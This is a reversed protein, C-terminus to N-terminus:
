KLRKIKKNKAKHKLRGRRAPHSKKGRKKQERLAPFTNKIPIKPTTQKDM